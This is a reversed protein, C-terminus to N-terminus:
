CEFSVANMFYSGTLRSGAQRLRSIEQWLDRRGIEKGRLRWGNREWKVSWEAIGKFVYESDLVTVLHQGARRRRLAHLVGRLEARSVSRQKPTPIPAAHHRESHHGFRVGYGAQWWGGVQKASRDTYAITWGEGEFVAQKKLVSDRYKGWKQEKASKPAATKRAPFVGPAPQRRRFMGGDFWSLLQTLLHQMNQHLAHRQPEIAPM